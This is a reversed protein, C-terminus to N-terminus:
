VNIQLVCKRHLQLEHLLSIIHKIGQETGYKSIVIIYKLHSIVSFHHSANMPAWSNAIRDKYWIKLTKVM